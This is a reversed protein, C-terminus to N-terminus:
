SVRLQLEEMSNRRKELQTLGREGEGLVLSLKEFINTLHKLSTVRCNCILHKVFEGELNSWIMCTKHNQYCACSKNEIKWINYICLFFKQCCNRRPDEVINEQYGTIKTRSGFIINLQHCLLPVDKSSNVGGHCFLGDWEWM